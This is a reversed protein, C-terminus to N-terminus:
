RPPSATPGADADDGDDPAAPSAATAGQAQADKLASVDVTAVVVTTGSSCALPALAAFVACTALLLAALRSLSVTRHSKRM